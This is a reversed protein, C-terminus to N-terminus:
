TATVIRALWRRVRKSIFVKRIIFLLFFQERFFNGFSLCCCADYEFGVFVDAVIVSDCSAALLLDAVIILVIM